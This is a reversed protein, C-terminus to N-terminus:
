QAASAAQNCKSLARYGQSSQWRGKIKDAPLRKSSVARKPNNVAVVQILAQQKIQEEREQEELLRVLIAKDINDYAVNGQEIVARVNTITKETRM